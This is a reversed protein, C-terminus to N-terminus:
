SAVGSDPPLGAIRSLYDAVVELASRKPSYGLAEAAHDESAYIQSSGTTSEAIETSYQIKVGFRERALQLIDHKRAPERTYLELPGNGAGSDEWCRILAALEARGAYDRVMDAPSTKFPVGNRVSEALECLFFHGRRPLTVDAYAFVRLDLIAHDRSRRHRREAELKAIVYPPAKPNQGRKASGVGSVVGSSLFVYRARADMTELVRNDWFATVDIIETGISAVRGPDGAGIANIVLEFDAAAFEELSRLLVRSAFREGALRHPQRAFLVLGRPDASLERALSLGITGTAGLIAIM